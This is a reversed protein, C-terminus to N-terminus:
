EQISVVIGADYANIVEDPTPRHKPDFMSGLCKQFIGDAGETDLDCKYQGEPTIYRIEYQGLLLRSWTTDLSEALSVLAGKELAVRKLFVSIVNPQFTSLVKQLQSAEEESYGCCAVLAQEVRKAYENERLIRQSIESSFHVSVNGMM